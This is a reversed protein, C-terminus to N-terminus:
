YALLVPRCFSLRDIVCDVLLVTKYFCDALLVPRLFVFLLQLEAFCLSDSGLVPRVPSKTKFFLSNLFYSM